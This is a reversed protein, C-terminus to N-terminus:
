EAQAVACERRWVLKGAPLGVKGLTTYGMYIGFLRNLAAGDFLGRELSGDM